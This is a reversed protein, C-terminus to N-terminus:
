GDGWENGKQYGDTQKKYNLTQKKIQEMREGQLGWQEKTKNRLNWYIFLIMHYKDEESQSVKSLMISKARDM